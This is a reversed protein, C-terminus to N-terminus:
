PCLPGNPGFPYPGGPQRESPIEPPLHPPLGYDFFMFVPTWCNYLLNMFPGCWGLVRGARREKELFRWLEILQRDQEPTSPTWPTVPLGGIPPTSIYFGGEGFMGPGFELTIRTGDPLRIEIYGHSFWCCIRRDTGLPDTFDSPANGVYRYTNQDLAAFGVPDNQLFRMYEASYARM